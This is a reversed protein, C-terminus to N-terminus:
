SQLEDLLGEQAALQVLQELNAKVARGSKLFAAPGHMLAGSEAASVGAAVAPVNVGSGDELLDKKKSPAKRTERKGYVVFFPNLPHEKGYVM